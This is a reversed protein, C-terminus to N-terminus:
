ANWLGWTTSWWVHFGFVIPLHMNPINLVHLFRSTVSLCSMCGLLDFELETSSSYEVLWFSWSEGLVQTSSHALSWKSFSDPCRTPVTPDRGGQNSRNSIYKSKPITSPGVRICMAKIRFYTQIFKNCNRSVLTWHVPVWQLGMPGPIIM